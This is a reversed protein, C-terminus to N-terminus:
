YVTYFIAVQSVQDTKQLLEYKNVWDASNVIARADVDPLDFRYNLDIISIMLIIFVCPRVGNIVARCRLELTTLHVSFFFGSVLWFLGDTNFLGLWPITEEADEEVEEARGSRTEFVLRRSLEHFDVNRRDAMEDFAALHANVFTLITSNPTKVGM